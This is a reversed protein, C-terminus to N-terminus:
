EKRHRKSIEDVSEIIENIGGFLMFPMFFLLLPTYMLLSIWSFSTIINIMFLVFLSIWIGALFFGIVIKSFIGEHRLHRWDQLGM